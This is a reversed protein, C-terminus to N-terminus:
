IVQMPTPSSSADVRKSTLTVMEMIRTDEKTVLLLDDHNCNKNSTSSYEFNTDGNSRTSGGREMHDINSCHGPSTTKADADANANEAVLVDVQASAILFDECEERKLILDDRKKQLDILKRRCIEMETLIKRQVELVTELKQENDAQIQFQKKSKFKKRWTM